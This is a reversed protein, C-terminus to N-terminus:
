WVVGALLAEDPWAYRRAREDAPAGDLAADLAIRHDLVRARAYSAATDNRTLFPWDSAAMLSLERLGQRRAPVSAMSTRWREASEDVARLM